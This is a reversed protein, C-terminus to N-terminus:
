TSSGAKGGRGFLDFVLGTVPASTGQISAITSDTINPLIVAATDIGAGASVLMLPGADVDWNTSSSPALPFVPPLATGSSDGTGKGGDGCAALVVMLLGIRFPHMQGSTLRDNPRRM